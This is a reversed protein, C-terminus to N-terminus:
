QIFTDPGKKFHIRGRKAWYVMQLLRLFSQESSIPVKAQGVVLRLIYCDLLESPSIRRHRGLEILQVTFLGGITFSPTSDHDLHTLVQGEGWEEGIKVTASSNPSNIASLARGITM